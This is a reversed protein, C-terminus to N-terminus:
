KRQSGSEQEVASEVKKPWLLSLLISAALVIAVVGLSIGIPIDIHVATLLMKAGIFSLVLALGIKLYHFKEVVGALLFYLSRL